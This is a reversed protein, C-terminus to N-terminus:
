CYLIETEVPAGWGGKVWKLNKHIIDWVAHISKQWCFQQIYETLKGRAHILISFCAFTPYLSHHTTKIMVLHANLESSQHSAARCTVGQPMSNASETSSYPCKPYIYNYYVTHDASSLWVKVKLKKPSKQCM